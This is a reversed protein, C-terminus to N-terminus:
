ILGVVQERSDYVDWFIGYSKLVHKLVRCCTAYSKKHGALLALLLLRIRNDYAFITYHLDAKIVKTLMGTEPDCVEPELSLWPLQTM